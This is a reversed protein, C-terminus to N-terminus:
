VGDAPIPETIKKQTSPKPPFCLVPIFIVLVFYPLFFTWLLQPPIWIGWSVVISFSLIAGLLALLFTAIGGASNDDGGIHLWFHLNKLVNSIALGVFALVAWSYEASCFYSVPIVVIWLVPIAVIWLVEVLQWLNLQAISKDGM